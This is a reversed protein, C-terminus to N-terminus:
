KENQAKTCEWWQMLMTFNVQKKGALFFNPWEHINKSYLNWKMRHGCSLMLFKLTLGLKRLSPIQTMYFFGQQKLMIKVIM